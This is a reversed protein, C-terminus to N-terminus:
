REIHLVVKGMARRTALQGFASAYDDLPYSAMVRPTLTGALVMDILDKMNQRNVAPEAQTFAGWFVGVISAGKLLPLNWPVSPIDGAAFGIVLHRGKWAVARFAQYTLEGGVPDFIVDIGKGGVLEKLATKLDSAGYNITEDAGLGRCFAVKEETSAAAIVRAGMVKGIEVAASGVGGAAGLVLLTEGPQLSARQKLAHYSTGYALALVAATDFSFSDDIPMCTAADVAWKEAFAGMAGAAMVRQGVSLHSVGEGLAAITGAAEVGPVFPPEARTQYLGQVTLLDPFNLSASAVDILVQGDGAVPDPMEVLELRDLPGFEKCLVARM